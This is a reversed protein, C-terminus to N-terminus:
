QFKELLCFDDMQSTWGKQWEKEAPQHPLTGHDLMMPKLRDAGISLKKVLRFLTETGAVENGSAM